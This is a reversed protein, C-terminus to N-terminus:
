SKSSLKYNTPTPLDMTKVKLFNLSPQSKSKPKVVYLCFKWTLTKMDHNRTCYFSNFIPNGLNIWNFSELYLMLYFLNVKNHVAHLIKCQPKFNFKLLCLLRQVITVKVCFTKTKTKERSTEYRYGDNNNCGWSMGNQM